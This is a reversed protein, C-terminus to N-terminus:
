EVIYELFQITTGGAFKDTNLYVEHIRTKKGKQDIVMQYDLVPEIGEAKLKELMGKTDTVRFCLHQFGEGKEKLFRTHTTEGQMIEVLEIFFDGDYALAAKFVPKAPKGDALFYDAGAMDFELIDFPGIGFVRTYFEAAKVCDEVVIGVHSVPGVQVVPKGM